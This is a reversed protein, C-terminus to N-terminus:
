FDKLCYEEPKSNLKREGLNIAKRLSFLGTQKDLIHFLIETHKQMSMMSLLVCECMLSNILHIQFYSFQMRLQWPKSLHRCKM